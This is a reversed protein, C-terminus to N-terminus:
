RGFLQFAAWASPPRGAAIREIQTQRLASAADEGRALRRHFATFFDATEEDEITWLSAIVTSVGAAFFARALSSAGETASLAGGSTSCGSLVVLHTHALPWAAIERSFVAGDSRGDSALVLHSMQPADIRVVAHGAIHLVDYAPALSQLAVDTAAHGILTTGHEYAAAVARAERESAPLDPLRFAGADFAPNGVALVTPSRNPRPAEHGLMEALLTASPEIRLDYDQILVRSTKANRLAAFPVFHLSRDPIVVLKANPELEGVPAILVAYLSEALAIRERDRSPDLVSARFRSSLDQLDSAGLGIRHLDLRDHRVLWVLTERPLVAYSLVAADKPLKAQLPGVVNAPPVAEAASGGTRMAFSELLARARTRDFFELAARPDGHDAHFTLIQDLAARANDLFAIREDFTQATARQRETVAMASDFAARAPDIRGASARSQALYLYASALDRTYNSERYEDVVHQLASEAERPSARLSILGRVLTADSLLTARSREDSVRKAASFASDIAAAALAVAGMRALQAARGKHATTVWAPNGIRQTIRVAEDWYRLSLRPAESGTTLAALSVASYISRNQTPFRESAQLTAYLVRWGEDRGRLVTTLGALWSASRLIIEPEDTRQGERMASDYAAVAHVYDSRTDYLLGASSAALSRVISYSHHASDRISRITRFADEDSHQNSQIRALYMAAWWAMPSEGRALLRRADLFRVLAAPPKLSDVFLSTGEKIAVHGQALAILRRADRAARARDIAAVADKAMADGSVTELQRALARALLLVSDQAYAAGNGSSVLGQGWDGLTSRLLQSAQSLNNAVLAHLAADDSAAAARRLREPDFAWRESTRELEAIHERAEAAWPSSSDKELYRNWAVVADHRLDLQELVVALTFRAEALEDDLLHASDAATAADVLLSPNGSTEALSMLAVALDNQARADFPQRRTLVRLERVAREPRNWVLNWVGLAHSDPRRGNPTGDVQMEKAFAQLDPASSWSTPAADPCVLGRVLREASSDANCPGYAFGGTLRGRTLRHEGVAAALRHLPRSGAFASSKLLFVLGAAAAVIVVLVAALRGAAFSRGGGERQPEL